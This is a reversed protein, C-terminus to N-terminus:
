VEYHHAYMGKNYVYVLGKYLKHTKCLKAMSDIDMLRTDLHFVCKELQNLLGNNSDNLPYLVDILHITILYM